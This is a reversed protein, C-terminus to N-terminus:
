VICSAAVHDSGHMCAHMRMRERSSQAIQTRDEFDRLGFFELVVMGKRIETRRGREKKKEGEM